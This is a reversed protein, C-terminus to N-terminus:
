IEQFAKILREKTKLPEEVVIRAGGIIDVFSLENKYRPIIHMHLHEISAGAPKGMNYGINYGQPQYLKELIEISKKELNSLIIVEETTYERIDKIHRLPVIMIHGSNYPYLNVCVMFNENRYVELEDVTGTKNILECFICEVQPRDGKCYDMKNVSFLNKM